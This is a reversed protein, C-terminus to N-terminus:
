DLEIYDWRVTGYFVFEWLNHIIEDVWDYNIWEHEEEYEKKNHKLWYKIRCLEDLFSSITIEREYYKGENHKKTKFRRNVTEQHKDDTVFKQIMWDIWRYETFREGLRLSKNWSIITDIRETDEWYKIYERRLNELEEVFSSMTLKDGYKARCRNFWDKLLNKTKEDAEYLCDILNNLEYLKECNKCEGDSLFAEGIPKQCDYSKANDPLSAADRVNGEVTSVEYFTFFM